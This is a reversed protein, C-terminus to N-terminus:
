KLAATIESWINRISKSASSDPAYEVIPVGAVMSETVIPDFEIRGIVNIGNRECFRCVEETNRLNLDYKNVCVLSEIGFHNTLMLARKLDHIGSLTPEVIIVALDIGTVSAIVPCGIGPPGDNLILNYGNKEALEKANRRVLNVLKGSNEEGPNLQAHSMFGYRIRSTYLYGSVNEKFTIAKEPCLHVCIGCGECLIPDIKFNKIANFRCADECIGCEVCKSEDIEARKQGYFNEIRLVEPKLLLHLNSADVDCDTVVCEETLSVLSATLTTKGTGGKGSLVTIEKISM